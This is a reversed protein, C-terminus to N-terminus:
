AATDQPVRPPPLTRSPPDRTTHGTSYDASRIEVVVGPQQDGCSNVAATWPRRGRRGIVQAAAPCLERPPPRRTQGSGPSGRTRLDDLGEAPGSGGAGAGPTSDSACSRRAQPPRVTRGGRRPRTGPHGGPPWRGVLPSATSPRGSRLAQRGSSPVQRRSIASCAASGRAAPEKPRRARDVGTAPRPTPSFRGGISLECPYPCSRIALSYFAPKNM